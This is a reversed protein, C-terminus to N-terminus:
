LKKSHIMEHCEKCVGVLDFLPEKFVRDYTLHHVDVAKNVLCAQCVYNDRNLVRTRKDRWQPTKLYDNYEAWWKDNADQIQKERKESIYNYFAKRRQWREEAVQDTFEKTVLPLNKWEDPNEMKIMATLNGCNRCYLRKTPKGDKRPRNVYIEDPNICCTELDKVQGRFCDQCEFYIDYKGQHIIKENVCKDCNM